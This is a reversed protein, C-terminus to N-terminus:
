GLYEAAYEMFLQTYRNACDSDNELAHGSNPYTIFEHAIGHESLAEDLRVANSYPVLNDKQGHAIITPVANAAYTVPFYPATYQAIAEDTVDQGIIAAALQLYGNQFVMGPAYFNPDSLDTPACQSGVAVPEIKADSPTNYAYMLALHAGASMGTTMMKNLTYGESKAKDCIASVAAHVDDLIDQMKVGQALFRYNISAAAYGYNAAVNKIVPQYSAKDGSTWAGGHIYLILGLTDGKDTPIYLDYTQQSNSGYSLNLFEKYNTKAGGGGFLASFFAIISMFFAIIKSWM